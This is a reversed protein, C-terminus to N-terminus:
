QLTLNDLLNKIPSCQQAIKDFFDKLQRYSKKNYISPMKFEFSYANKIAEKMEIYNDYSILKCHMVANRYKTLYDLSNKIDLVEQESFEEFRELLSKGAFIKKIHSIEVDGIHKAYNAELYSSLDSDIENDLVFPVCLLQSYESFHLEEVFDYILEIRSRKINKFRQVDFGVKEVITQLTQKSYKYM